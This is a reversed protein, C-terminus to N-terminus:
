ACFCRLLFALLPDINESHSSSKCVPIGIDAAQGRSPPSASIMEFAKGLLFDVRVPARSVGM